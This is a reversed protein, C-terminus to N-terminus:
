WRLGTIWSVQVYDADASGLRTGELARIELGSQFQVSGDRPWSGLLGARAWLGLSSDRADLEDNSISAKVFAPGGGLYGHVRSSPRRGWHKEVGADFERLSSRGVTRETTGAFCVVFPICWGEGYPDIESETMEGESEHVGFALEVPWNDRWYNVSIGESSQLDMGEWTSNQMFRLGLDLRVRAEALAETSLAAAAIPVLALLMIWRSMAHRSEGHTGIGSDTATRANTWRDM